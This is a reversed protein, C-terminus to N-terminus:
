DEKEPMYFLAVSRSFYMYFYPAVILLILVGGVIDLFILSFFYSIAVNIGMFIILFIIGAVVYWKILNIGGISTIEDFIERFRFASKLEGEYYAMNAIAVLLIPTIIIMYLIGILASIGELGVFSSIDYLIVGISPIGNWIVSLSPNFLFELPNSGFSELFLTFSEFFSVILISMIIIAPISYVIFTLFVKVGGVGMDIWNNFEPLEKKGDLSSKIIRLTYGSGFFGIIFGIGALLLKIDINTVGLSMAAASICNVIIIIGLILIKKWDSLPYRISDKIIEGINM